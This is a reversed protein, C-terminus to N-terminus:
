MCIQLFPYASPLKVIIHRADQCKKVENSIQSYSAARPYICDLNHPYVPRYIETNPYEVDLSKNVFATRSRIHRNGPLNKDTIARQARGVAEPNIYQPIIKPINIPLRTQDPLAVVLAAASIPLYIQELNHPYVPKYIVLNPYDLELTSNARPNLSREGRNLPPYINDLNHPYTPAYVVLNPYRCSLVTTVPARSSRGRKVHHDYNWSFPYVLSAADVGDYVLPTYVHELTTRLPQVYNWSFPYALSATDQGDISIPLLLSPGAILAQKSSKHTYDWSFPYMQSSWDISEVNRPDRKSKPIYDWRFPYVQPSLDKGAAPQNIHTSRAARVEHHIYDWGYPYVLSTSDVGEFSDSIFPALSPAVKANPPRHDYDWTFPYVQSTDMEPIAKSSKHKYDWSFPYVVSSPSPEPTVAEPDSWVRHLKHHLYDWGFPYVLSSSDVGDYSEAVSPALSPTNLKQRRTVQAQQAFDWTLPYVLSSPEVGGLSPPLTKTPHSPSCAFSQARRPQHSYDWDFPYVQSSLDMDFREPTKGDLSKRSYDWGFPYVQSSLEDVLAESEDLPAPTNVYVSLYLCDLNFPYVAPYVELSPYHRTLKTDM